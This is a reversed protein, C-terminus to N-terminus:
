VAAPAPGHLRRWYPRWGMAGAIRRRARDHASRHPYVAVQHGVFVLRHGSTRKPDQSHSFTLGVPESKMALWLRHSPHIVHFPSALELFVALVGSVRSLSGQLWMPGIEFLPFRLLTGHGPQTVFPLGAHAESHGSEPPARLQDVCCKIKFPLISHTTIPGPYRRPKVEASFVSIHSRQCRPSDNLEIPRAKPLSDDDM